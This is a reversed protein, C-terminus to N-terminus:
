ANVSFYSKGQFEIFDRYAQFSCNHNTKIGRPSPVIEKKTHGQLNKASNCAPRLCGSLHYFVQCM